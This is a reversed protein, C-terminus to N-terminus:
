LLSSDRRAENNVGTVYKIDSIFERLDLLKIEEPIPLTDGKSDVGGVIVLNGFLPEPYGMVMRGYNGEKLMGEDDVYVSIDKGKWQVRVADFLSVELHKYYDKYTNIETVYEKVIPQSEGTIIKSVLAKIM